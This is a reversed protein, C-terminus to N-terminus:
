WLMLVLNHSPGWQFCLHTFFNTLVYKVHLLCEFRFLCHAPGLEQATQIRLRGQFEDLNCLDDWCCSCATLSLVLFLPTDSWWRVGPATPLFLLGSHSVFGIWSTGARSPRSSATLLGHPSAYTLSSASEPCMCLCPLPPSLKRTGPSICWLLPVTIKWSSQQGYFAVEGLPFRLM